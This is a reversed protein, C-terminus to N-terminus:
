TSSNRQLLQYYTGYKQIPQKRDRRTWHAFRLPKLSRYLQYYFFNPRPIDMGLLDRSEYIFPQFCLPLPEDEIGAARKAESRNMVPLDRQPEIGCQLLFARFSNNLDAFRIICNLYPKNLSFFTDYPLRHYRNIFQTFTLNGAQVAAYRKRDKKRIHGGQEVNFRAENYYGDPPSKLKYYYTRLTDVPNRLVAAVTYSSLDLGSGHLMQINAHKNLIPEGGYLLCLESSIATSGSFPIGIFIYKHEKSIIM